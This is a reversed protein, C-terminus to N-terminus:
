IYNYFLFIIYNYCLFIIYNYFLVEYTIGQVWGTTYNVPILEGVVDVSQVGIPYDSDTLSARLITISSCMEGEVNACPLM